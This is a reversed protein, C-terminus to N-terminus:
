RVRFRRLVLAGAGFLFLSLGAVGAPLLGIAPQGTEALMGFSPRTLTSVLRPAPAFRASAGPIDTVGRSVVAAAVPTPAVAAAAASTAVGGPSAPAGPVGGGEASGGPVPPATDGVDVAQGIVLPVYVTFRSDPSKTSLATLSLTFTGATLPTGRILGTAADVVLGSPLGTVVFSAKPVNSTLQFAYPAGVVGAPPAPSTIVPVVVPVANVVLTQFVVLSTDGVHEGVAELRVTFSGAATPTGSILGTRPDAWLGAPLGTVSYTVPSVNSTLQFSYPSGVTAPGFPPSTIAAPTVTPEDIVLADYRVLSTDAVMSGFAELRVSFTGAVTPRGTIRATSPDYRLGAPLGTVSFTAPSVNATLQYAYDVGVTGAPLGPSTVVPVPVLEAEPADAVVVPVEAARPAETVVPVGAEEPAEAVAPLPDPTAAVAEPAEAVVPAEQPARSVDPIPSPAGGPMEAVDTTESAVPSPAAALVAGDAEAPASGVGEDATASLGGAGLLLVLLGGGVVARLGPRSKSVVPM